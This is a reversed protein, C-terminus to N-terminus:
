ALKADLPNNKEELKTVRDDLTQLSLVDDKISEGQKTDSANLLMFVCYYSNYYVTNPDPPVGEIETDINGITDSEYTGQVWINIHQGRKVPLQCLPEPPQKDFAVSPGHEIPLDRQNWTWGLTAQPKQVVTRNEDILDVYVAYVGENEDGKLHHVLVCRWVKGTKAESRRVETWQCAPNPLVLNIESFYKHLNLM